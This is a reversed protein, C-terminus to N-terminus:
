WGFGLDRAKGSESGVLEACLSGADLMDEYAIHKWGPRTALLDHSSWLELRKGSSEPFLTEVVNWAQDPMSAPVGARVSCSEHKLWAEAGSACSTCILM